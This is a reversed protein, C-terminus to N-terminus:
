RANARRRELPLEPLVDLLFAKETLERLEARPESRHVIQGDRQEPVRRCIGCEAVQEEAHLSGVLRARVADAREVDRQLVLAERRQVGHAAHVPFTAAVRASIASPASTLRRSRSKPDDGSPHAPRGKAAM